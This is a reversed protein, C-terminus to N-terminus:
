SLALPQIIIVKLVNAGNLLGRMIASSRKLLCRPLITGLMKPPSRM